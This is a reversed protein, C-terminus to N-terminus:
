IVSAVNAGLRYSLNQLPWENENYRVTDRVGNKLSGVNVLNIVLPNSM